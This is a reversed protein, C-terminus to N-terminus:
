SGGPFQWSLYRQQWGDAQNRLSNWQQEAQEPTRAPKDSRTRYLNLPMLSQPNTLRWRGEPDRKLMITARTKIRDPRSGEPVFNHTLKLDAYATDESVQNLSILRGQSPQVRNSPTESGLFFVRIAGPCGVQEPLGYFYHYFRWSESDLMSCLAQLTTKERLRSLARLLDAVAAQPSPTAAVRQGQQSAGGSLTARNGQVVIQGEQNLYARAESGLESLRFVQSGGGGSLYLVARPSQQSWSLEVQEGPQLAAQRDITLARTHDISRTAQGLRASGQMEAQPDCLAAVTYPHIFSLCYSDLRTDAGAAGPLALAAILVALATLKTKM